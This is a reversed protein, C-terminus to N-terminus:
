QEDKNKKAYKKVEALLDSIELELYTYILYPDHEKTIIRKTNVVRSEDVEITFTYKQKSM